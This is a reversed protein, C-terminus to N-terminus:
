VSVVTCVVVIQLGANVLPESGSAEVAWGLSVMGELVLWWKANFFKIYWFIM